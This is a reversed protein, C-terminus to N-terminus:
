EDRDKTVHFAFCAALKQSLGRANQRVWREIESEESAAAGGAWLALYRSKLPDAAFFLFTEDSVHTDVYIIYGNLYRFSQLVDVSQVKLQRALHPALQAKRANSLSRDVGDCPSAIAGAAAVSALTAILWRM